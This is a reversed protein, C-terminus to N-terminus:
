AEILTQGERKCYDSVPHKGLKKIENDTFKLHEPDPAVGLYWRERSSLYEYFGAPYEGSMEADLAQIEKDFVTEM